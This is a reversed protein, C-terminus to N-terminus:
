RANEPSQPSPQRVQGVVPIRATWPARGDFVLTVSENVSDEFANPNIRLELLDTDLQRVRLADSSTAVSALRYGAIPAATIQRVIDADRVVSGLLIMQPRLTVPPAVSVHLPIILDPADSGGSSISIAYEREGVPHDEVLGAVLSYRAPEHAIADLRLGLLKSGANARLTRQGHRATIITEVTRQGAPDAIALHLDRVQAVVPPDYEYTVEVQGLISPGSLLSLYYVSRGVALEAFRLRVPISLVGGAELRTPVEVDASMCGCGAAVSTITYASATANRVTIVIQPDSGTDRTIRGFSPATPQFVLAPGAARPASPWFMIAAAVGALIAALAWTEVARRGVPDM